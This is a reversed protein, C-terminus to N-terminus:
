HNELDESAKVRMQDSDQWRSSTPGNPIALQDYCFKTEGHLIVVIHAQGMPDLM